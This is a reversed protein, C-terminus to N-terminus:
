AARRRDALLARVAGAAGVASRERMLVGAEPTTVIESIKACRRRGDVAAKPHISSGNPTRQALDQLKLCSFPRRCFLTNSARHILSTPMM